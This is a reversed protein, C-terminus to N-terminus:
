AAIWNAVALKAVADHYDSLRRFNTITTQIRGDKMLLCATSLQGEINLDGTGSRVMESAKGDGWLGDDMVELARVPYWAEVRLIEVRNSPDRSNSCTFHVDPRTAGRTVPFGHRIMEADSWVTIPTEGKKVGRTLYVTRSPMNQRIKNLLSAVKNDAQRFNEQSDFVLRIRHETRITRVYGPQAMAYALTKELTEAHFSTAGLTVTNKYM